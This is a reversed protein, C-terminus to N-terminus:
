RRPDETKAGKEDEGVEMIKGVGNRIFDESYAEEFLDMAMKGTCHCPAIKLVGLQQLDNIISGIESEKKSALHFGGLLLYVEDEGVEMAREVMPVIGPHACGTIVVLGKPMKLLLAQEAIGTGMEGTTHVSETIAEPGSVEYLTANAKVKAKFDAPFSHPVYVAPRAGAALVSALGGTHDGHIHSLVIVDMDRPDLGLATMNSLLTPGDAGTDFLIRTEGTEIVCAFGWASRLRPDYANNDYVVSLTAGEVTGPDVPDRAPQLTPTATPLPVADAVDPMTAQRLSPEEPVGAQQAHRSVSLSMTGVLVWAALGAWRCDLM